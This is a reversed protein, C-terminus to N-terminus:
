RGRRSDGARRKLTEVTAAMRAPMLLGIALTALMAVSLLLFIAAVIAPV